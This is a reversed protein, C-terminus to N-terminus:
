RNAIDGLHYASPKVTRRFTTRDATMLGFTPRYGLVWEFNDLLSWHFYGRVDIGEDITAKLGDLARDIYDIRRQDDDTAVGNETVLIPTGSTVRWAHRVTGALAEPYYEMGIQTTEAGPPVPLPGDPGILERTYAQIGIFDDGKAAELFADQRPWAWAAAVEEAGEVPQYDTACVTWGARLGSVSRLVEVAHRHATVLADVTRPDPATRLGASSAPQPWEAPKMAPSTARKHPDVIYELMAAFNPENITCVWEVGHSVIPLAAETFRAFREAAHPGTWWGARRFWRPVTMHQLTVVPALGRRHCGDVMRRYHDIEARSFEGEEPEIRSWELSFRYANLGTGALLDLDEPWRHYSDCADGSPEVFATDAAHEMEWFDNYVNGGEIQHAASSAGWLFGDPFAAGGSIDM